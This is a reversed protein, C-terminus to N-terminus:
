DYFNSLYRMNEITVSRGVSPCFSGKATGDFIFKLNINRGNVQNAEARGICREKGATDFFKFLATEKENRRAWGQFVLKGALGNASKQEAYWGYKEPPPSKLAVALHGSQSVYGADLPFATAPSSIGILAASLAITKIRNSLRM